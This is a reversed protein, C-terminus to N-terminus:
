LGDGQARCDLAAHQRGVHPHGHSDMWLGGYTACGLGGTFLGYGYCVHVIDNEDGNAYIIGRAFCEGWIDLDHQTYGGVTAVGTTGSSMHIEKVDSMPSAFLGYPYNDRLDQKCIFPAKKLDDLSSLACPDFARRTM